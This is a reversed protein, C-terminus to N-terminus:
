PLRVVDLSGHTCSAGDTLRKRAAPAIKMPRVVVGSNPQFAIVSLGNVPTVRLGQFGCVVGPPEDPPATTAAAAPAPTSCMPVSPPPDIRM